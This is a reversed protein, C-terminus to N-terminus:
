RRMCDLYELWAKRHAEAAAPSAQMLGTMVWARRLRERKQETTEVEVVLPRYPHGSVSM